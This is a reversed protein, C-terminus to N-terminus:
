PEPLDLTRAQGTLCQCYSAATRHLAVMLPGSHGGVRVPEGLIRLLERKSQPNIQLCGMGALHRVRADILPRFPEMLDDALCFPNYRNRHHFGLSPHLGAAVIARAVAARLVAYGYNLLNNPPPGDPDRRFDQGLLAPWYIRAAQAEINSPDGSRVDGVLALLRNYQPQDPALNAAQMRIKARVIQQWLRKGLPRSAEVQARLRETQLDNGVLPLLLGAPHHSADCIILTGGHKMLAALLGATITTAQEDIILVGLDECPVTAPPQDRRRVVLQGHRLALHAPGSSIEVTRKIM